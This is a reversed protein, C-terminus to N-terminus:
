HGEPLLPWAMSIHMALDWQKPTTTILQAPHLSFMNIHRDFSLCSDRLIDLQICVLVLIHNCLLGKWPNDSDFQSHEYLFLPWQDGWVYMEGSKAQSQDQLTHASPLHDVSPNSVWCQELWCQCPMAPVWYDQAPIRLQIQTKLPAKSHTQWWITHDM